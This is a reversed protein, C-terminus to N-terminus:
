ALGEFPLRDPVPQRTRRAAVAALTRERVRARYESRRRIQLREFRLEGMSEREKILGRARAEAARQQQSKRPGLQERPVGDRSGPDPAGHGDTVVTTCDHVGGLVEARDARRSREGARRGRAQPAAPTGRAAREPLNTCGTTCGEHLDAACNLARQAADHLLQATM